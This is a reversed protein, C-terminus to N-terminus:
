DNKEEASKGTFLSVVKLAEDKARTFDGEFYAKEAIQLLPRSDTFERRFANAYVIAQEAKACEANRRKTEELLADCKKAFPEFRERAKFVDVPALLLVQDISSAEKYLEHFRDDYTTQFARVHVDRIHWEEDKLALYYSRIGAYISQSDDRLSDLYTSFDEVVRQVKKMEDELDSIRKTILSFPKKQSTGVYADIDRKLFGITEIDKRLSQMQEVYKHDLVYTKEYIPLQNMFRAYKKELEYSSDSLADQNKMFVAKARKEEEFKANTDSISKQIASLREKVGATDLLLLRHRIQALEGKISAVLTPVELYDLVYGQQQLAKYDRELKDISEPIVTDVKTVMSPLDEMISLVASLVASIEPLRKRAEEFRAQNVDDEFQSFVDETSQFLLDFSGKLPKLEDVHRDYFDRIKRFKEKASLSSERTDLDDRLLSTLDENFASVAKEYDDLLVQAQSLANKFEKLKKEERLRKLTSLKSEMAADRQKVIDDYQKQREEYLKEYDPSYSGLSQLRRVMNQCPKTLQDHYTRYDNQLKAYLKLTKRHRLFLLVVVLVIIAVPVLVFLLITPVTGLFFIDNPM